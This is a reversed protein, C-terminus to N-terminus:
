ECWNRRETLRTSGRYASLQTLSLETVEADRVVEVLHPTEGVRQGGNALWQLILLKGGEHKVPKIIVIVVENLVDM